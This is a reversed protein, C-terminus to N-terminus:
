SRSVLTFMKMRPPLKRRPSRLGLTSYQLEIPWEKCRNSSRGLDQVVPTPEVGLTHGLRFQVSELPM